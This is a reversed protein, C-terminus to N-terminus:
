PRLININDVCRLTFQPYSEEEDMSLAVGVENEAGWGLSTPTAKKEIITAARNALVATMLEHSQHYFRPRERWLVAGIESGRGWDVLDPGCIEVCV